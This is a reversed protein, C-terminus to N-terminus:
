TALLDESRYQARQREVVLVIQDPLGVIRRVSQSGADPRRVIPACPADGAPERTPPVADATM